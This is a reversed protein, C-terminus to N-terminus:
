HAPTKEPWFSKSYSFGQSDQTLRNLTQQLVFPKELKGIVPRAASPEHRCLRQFAKFM